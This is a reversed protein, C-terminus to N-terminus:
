GFIDLTSPHRLGFVLLTPRALPGITGLIGDRLARMPPTRAQPASLYSAIMGAVIVSHLEGRPLARARQVAQGAIWTMREAAQQPSSYYGVLSRHGAQADEHSDVINDLLSHLGGIWPFYADGLAAVEVADLTQRSAAAILTHVCLSSGAAAATEWWWLGSGPPTAETAWQQLATHDGQAESLNLSQFSVIRAAAARATPAAIAFSPLQALAGRCEDLLMQLYGGDERQPHHEYWDLPAARAAPPVLGTPEGAAGPPTLAHPLAEHLRRGDAIPDASAQEGLIDLLNYAAQFACLALTVRGRHARPALTAFAAAGEINGRKALSALTLRRLHPDPIRQAAGRWRAIHACVRPFVGTWYTFAARAFTAKLTRRDRRTRSTIFSFM